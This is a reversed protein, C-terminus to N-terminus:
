CVAQILHSDILSSSGLIREFYVMSKLIKLEFDSSLQGHLSKQFGSQGGILKLVRLTADELGTVWSSQRVVASVRRQFETKLNAKRIIDSYFKNSHFFNLCKWSQSTRNESPRHKPLGQCGSWARGDRGWLLLRLENVGVLILRDILSFQPPM